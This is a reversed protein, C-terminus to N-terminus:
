DRYCLIEDVSHRQTGPARRAYGYWILGVCYEQAADIACADYFGPERTVAGTTWKSAVGASHLYLMLNQIACATAAYDERAIVDDDSKRCTVVLWGPVNRWRRDKAAAQEKGRAEAVLTTNLTIVADRTHPGLMYFRWPNTLRHNPAWRAVEVAARLISSGPLGSEFQVASRRGRILEAAQEPGVGSAAYVGRDAM